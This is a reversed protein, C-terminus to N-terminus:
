PEICYISNDGTCNVTAVSFTSPGGIAPQGVSATGSGSSWDNCTTSSSGGGVWVTTLQGVYTGDNREWIGSSFIGPFGALDSGKGIRVGDPRVYVADKTFQASFGTNAHAILAKASAVGPPLNKGCLADPSVNPVAGPSLTGVNVWIRKGSV